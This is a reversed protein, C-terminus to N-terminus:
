KRFYAPSAKADKFMAEPVLFVDGKAKGSSAFLQGKNDPDENGVLLDLGEDGVQIEVKLAKKNVDLGTDAGQKPTVFKTATLHSLSRIFNEVKAGDPTIPGDKKIWDNDGKREFALVVPGGLDNSWVTVKAGKVQKPDFSFITLDRLDASTVHDAM